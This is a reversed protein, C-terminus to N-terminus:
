CSAIGNIKIFSAKIEFYFKKWTVLALNQVFSIRIKLACGTFIGWKLAQQRTFLCLSGM